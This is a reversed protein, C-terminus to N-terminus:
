FGCHTCKGNNEIIDYEINGRIYYSVIKDKSFLVNFLLERKNLNHVLFSDLNKYNHGYLKKNLEFDENKYNGLMRYCWDNCEFWKSEYLKKM